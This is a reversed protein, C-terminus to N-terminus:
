PDGQRVVGALKRIRCRQEGLGAAGAHPRQAQERVVVLVRYVVPHEAVEKRGYGPLHRQEPVNGAEVSGGGAVDMADARLIGAKLNATQSTSLDMGRRMVGSNRWSGLRQSSVPPKRVYRPM